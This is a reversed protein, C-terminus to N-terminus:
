FDILQGTRSKTGKEVHDNAIQIIQRLARLILMDIDGDLDIEEHYNKVPFINSLPIGLQSQLDEMKMKIHQSKYVNQISEKILPCARDINTLIAM